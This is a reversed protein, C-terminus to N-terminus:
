QLDSRLESIAETWISKVKSNQWFSNCFFFNCKSLISPRTLEGDYTLFWAMVIMDMWQICCAWQMGFGHDWVTNAWMVGCGDSVVQLARIVVM